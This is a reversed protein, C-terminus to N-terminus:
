GVRSLFEHHRDRRAQKMKAYFNVLNTGAYVLVCVIVLILTLITTIPHMGPARYSPLTANTMTANVLHRPLSANSVTDPKLTVNPFLAMMSISTTDPFLNSTANSTM